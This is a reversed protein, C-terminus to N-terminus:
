PASRRRYMVDSRILYKIGDRLKEGDHLLFEDPPQRFLVGLGAEPTISVIPQVGSGAKASQSARMDEWFRTAGGHQNPVDNLYINATYFSKEDKNRAFYDDCHAQFCDGPLYKALRWCENLGVADWTSGASEISSPVLHSVRHWVADSLSLDITILRLNGRYMRPYNTRGFGIADAMQVLREAEDRSFVSEVTLLRSNSCYSDAKRHPTRLSTPADANLLGAWRTQVKIELQSPQIRPSGPIAVCVRSDYVYEKASKLDVPSPLASPPKGVCHRADDSPPTSPKTM